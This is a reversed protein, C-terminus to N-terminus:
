SNKKRLPKTLLDVLESRKSKWDKVKAQLITYLKENELKGDVRSKDMSELLITAQDIEDDLKQIQRTLFEQEM